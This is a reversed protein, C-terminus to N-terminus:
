SDTNSELLLEQVFEEVADSPIRRSSGILISRLQGTAILSFMRTRGISLIEQAEGVTLLKKSMNTSDMMSNRLKGLEAAIQELAEVQRKPLGRAEEEKDLQEWLAYTHGYKADDDSMPM